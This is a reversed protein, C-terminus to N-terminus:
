DSGDILAAILETAPHRGGPPAMTAGIRRAAARAAGDRLLERVAVVIQGPSAHPSLVKGAGTAAIAAANVPQDRGLPLTLVPVGHALAALATGIGGHTIVLEAHPLVAAHQVFGTVIANGPTAIASPDAHEGVTAVVRVPEPALAALITSLVPLEDMDTTGLSVVVLAGDGPPPAWGADRGAGEFVPGVYTVNPPLPDPMVDVDSSTTVIVRRVAHLLDGLREVTPLDLQQRLANVANVSAAMLMPTVTGDEVLAGYLTHVLAVTTVGRAETACLAAPLMYDVVVVDPNADSCADDVDEATARLEWQRQPDRGTFALAAADFRARLSAPGLVRVDHGTEVLQRGLAVVPNVNGGGHWTVFLIRGVSSHYPSTDRDHRGSRRTEM